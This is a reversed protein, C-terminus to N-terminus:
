INYNKTKENLYIANEIGSNSATNNFFIFTPQNIKGIKEMINELEEESYSSYYIKERGHLRLYLTDGTLKLINPWKNKSDNYVLNVNYKKILAFFEEEIWSDERIELFISYDSKQLDRFTKIFSELLSLNIKFSPPLQILVGSLKEKLGEISNLFGALKEEAEQDIELKKIHTFYKNIKIIFKFNKESDRYWKEITTERPFHYFTSNVEVICLQKSYHSLRDKSKLTNPYFINDKDYFSWGSTGVKIDM